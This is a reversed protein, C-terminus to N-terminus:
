WKKRIIYIIVVVIIALVIITSTTNSSEQTDDIIGDDVIPEDKKDDGDGIMDDDLSGDSVVLDDDIKGNNDDFDEEDELDEQKLRITEIVITKPDKVIGSPLDYSLEITKVNTFEWMMLPDKELIIADTTILDTSQLTEKPISEYVELNLEEDSNIKITVTNELITKEIDVKTMTKKYSDILIGKSIKTANAIKDLIKGLANGTVFNNVKQAKPCSPGLVAGMYDNQQQNVCFKNESTEDYNVPSNIDNNYIQNDNSNVIYFSYKKSDLIKNDTIYNKDANILYFASEFNLINCNKIIIGQTNNLLFGINEKNGILTAGNCDFKIGTKLEITYDINFEQKCLLMDRGVFPNIETSCEEAIVISTLLILVLVWLMVKKM